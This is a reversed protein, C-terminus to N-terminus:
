GMKLGKLVVTTHYGLHTSERIVDRWWVFMITVILGLGMYVLFTASEYGHFWMVSGTTLMLAGLSAVLPWPSPTVIHFKHHQAKARYISYAFKEKFSM